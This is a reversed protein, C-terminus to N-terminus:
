RASKRLTLQGTFSGSGTAVNDTGHFTLLGRSGTFDGSGGVVTADIHLTSTAGDLRFTEDLVLAGRHGAQDRGWFTEHLTGASDGTVLDYTGTVTYKTTGQLGGTWLTSGVCSMQKTLLDYSTFVCNVLSQWSGDVATPPAAQAGRATVMSCVTSALLATILARRM